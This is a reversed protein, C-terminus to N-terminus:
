AFGFEREINYSLWNTFKLFMKEDHPYQTFGAFGFRRLLELVYARGKAKEITKLARYDRLGEAFAKERLSSFADGAAKDPYILYCDGSPMIGGGDSSLMPDIYELTSLNLWYNYAWHLFGKTGNLYLQVGIVRTRLLPFNFFRNSLYEGSQDCCYYVWFDRKEFPKTRNTAAVPYTLFDANAFCEDSVADILNAYPLIERMYKGIKMYKEASVKQPEDSIHFFAREAIGKKQLIRYVGSFAGSLFRWYREDTAPVGCDFLAGMEGNKEGMIKPCHEAGQQSAVHSFEFYKYGCGIATDLFKELRSFDYGFAGNEERVILLQVIEPAKGRVDKQPHSFLPVFVTNIGNETAHRFYNKLIKYYGASFLKKGHAKAISDYYIWCSVPIDCPALSAESVSFCFTEEALVDRYDYDGMKFKIYHEGAPAGARVTVFLTSWYGRVVKLSRGAPQLLDPYYTSTRETFIRYDDPDEYDAVLSPVYKVEEIELFEATDSDTEVYLRGTVTTTVCVQFCLPEGAYARTCFETQRPEADRFVKEMPSIFKVKLM